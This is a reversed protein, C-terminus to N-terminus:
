RECARVAAGLNSRWLPRELATMGLNERLHELAQELEPWDFDFGEAVLREPEVWRSKTVMETETRMMFAGIELMWKTSPLGGESM